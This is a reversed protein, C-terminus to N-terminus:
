SLSILGMTAEGLLKWSQFRKCCSIAWGFWVFTVWAASREICNLASTCDISIMCRCVRWKPKDRFANKDCEFSNENRKLSSCLNLSLQITLFGFFTQRSPTEVRSFKDFSFKLPLRDSMKHDFIFWNGQAQVSQHCDFFLKIFSNMSPAREVFSASNLMWSLNCAIILYHLCMAASLRKM